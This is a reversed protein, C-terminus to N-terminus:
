YIFVGLYWFKKIIHIVIEELEFTQLLDKGIYEKTVGQEYKQDNDTIKIWKPRNDHDGTWCNEPSLKDDQLNRLNVTSQYIDDKDKSTM